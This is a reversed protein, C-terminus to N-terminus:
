RDSAIFALLRKARTQWDFDGARARANGALRGALSVDRIVLEIGNALVQPNDPEVLFAAGEGTLERVSSLDSAVIPKGTAMYALLKLPSTFSVSVRDLATNPLVCVDAAALNDPLERYPRAGLFIVGPHVRAARECEEHTGGIVVIRIDQPLFAAAAFLTDTGKWGGFAGVYFAFFTDLSLGLRARSAERTPPHAFAETEIGNPLALIKEGSVGREIYWARQAETVVVMQRASRAVYRAAFNWAGDHSEWVVGRVGLLLAVCLIHEDRGYVIDVGKKGRVYWASAIGFFFTQLMFGFRGFCRVVDPVALRRIPFPTTIAYYREPSEEIPTYRRPVVLEIDVGVRGLSECAKTIQIGHAKETPLRVNALYIIKM